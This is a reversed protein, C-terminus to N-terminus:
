TETSTSAMIKITDLDLVIYKKGQKELLGKEVMKNLTRLSDDSYWICEGDFALGRPSSNTLLVIEDKDSYKKNSVNKDKECSQIGILIVLVLSITYKM